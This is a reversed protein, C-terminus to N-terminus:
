GRKAKEALYKERGRKLAERIQEEGLAAMAAQGEQFRAEDDIEDDQEFYPHFMGVDTKPNNLNIVMAAARMDSRLEGWPDAAYFLEWM